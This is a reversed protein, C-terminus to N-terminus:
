WPNKRIAPTSKRIAPTRTEGDTLRGKLGESLPGRRTALQIVREGM